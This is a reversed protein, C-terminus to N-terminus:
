EDERGDAAALAEDIKRLMKKDVAGKNLGGRPDFGPNAILPRLTLLAAYMAPAAAGLQADDEDFFLGVLYEQRHGEFDHYTCIEIEPVDDEGTGPLMNGVHWREDNDRM